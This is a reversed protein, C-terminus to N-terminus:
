EWVGRWFNCYIRNGDLVMDYMLVEPNQCLEKEDEESQYFYKCSFCNIILPRVRLNFYSEHFPEYGRTYKSGRKQVSKLKPIKSM